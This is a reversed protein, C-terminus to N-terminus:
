IGGKGPYPMRKKLYMRLKKSDYAEFAVQKEFTMVDFTHHSIVFRLGYRTSPPM